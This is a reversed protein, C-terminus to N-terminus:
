GIMDKGTQTLTYKMDGDYFISGELRIDRSSSSIYVGYEGNEAVFDHLSVNYYSFDEKALIFKVAKEEGKKM